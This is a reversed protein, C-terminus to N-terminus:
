GRWVCHQGLKLFHILQYNEIGDHEMVEQGTIGAHGGSSYADLALIRFDVRTFHFATTDDNM